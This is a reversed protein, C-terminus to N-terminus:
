YKWLAYTHLASGVCRQCKGQDICRKAVWKALSSGVDFFGESAHILFRFKTSKRTALYDWYESSLDIFANDKKLNKQAFCGIDGSRKSKICCSSFFARRM